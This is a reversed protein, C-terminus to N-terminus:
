PRSVGGAVARGFRAGRSAFPRGLADASTRESRSASRQVEIEVCAREDLAVDGLGPAIPEAFQHTTGVRPEYAPDTEELRSTRNAQRPAHSRAPRHLRLPRRKGHDLDILLEHLM